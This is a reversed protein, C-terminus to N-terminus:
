ENRCPLSSQSLRGLAELDREGHSQRMYLDVEWYRRSIEANMSLPHPGYARAFRRLIDTGMQEILHRLKLARAQAARRDHPLADIERGAGNLLGFMGWLSAQMAGLHAMTHPDNRKSALAHDVLGAAGGAWCAAPGCAGHWFGSREVYWGPGGIQANGDVPMDVFTLEGTQTARFANSKWSEMDAKTAGPNRRLDVELLVQEPIGVTVLARDVLGIGSCFPKSGTVRLCDGVQELRLAQGPIESAWVAYFMGPEAARGAEALIAVADWHAEALKALSVDERATNALLRHREATQGGAPLPLHQTVIRRLREKLAEGTM